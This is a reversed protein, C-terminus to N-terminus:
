QLTPCTATHFNFRLDNKELLFRNFLTGPCQEPFAEPLHQLRIRRDEGQRKGAVRPGRPQLHRPAPLAGRLAAEGEPHAARCAPRGLLRRRWLDAELDRNRVSICFNSNLSM